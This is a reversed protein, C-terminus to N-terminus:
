CGSGQHHSRASIFQWDIRNQNLFNYLDSHKEVQKVIDKILLKLKSDAGIFNTANDSYIRTCLGRRSVFGKLCNLFGNLNLDRVAEIHVATTCFCVFICM